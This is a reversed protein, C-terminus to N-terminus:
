NVENLLINQLVAKLDFKLLDPSLLSEIRQKDGVLRWVENKRTFKASSVVDIHHGTIETMLALLQRVSTGGGACINITEGYSKECLMLAKITNGVCEVPLYDREADINGLEIEPLRNRFHHVLKPVIFERNQGVGIINFLRLISVDHKDKENLVFREAAFKSCGYHSVPKPCLDESLVEIGQNGYVGATSLFILRKRGGLENMAKLLNETGLVNIGYYDMTKGQTVSSLAASHIIIDPQVDKVVTSVQAANTIDCLALGPVGHRNATGVVNYGSEQLSAMLMRGIFGSAGTLLITDM